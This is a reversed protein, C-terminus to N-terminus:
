RIVQEEFPSLALANIRIVSGQEILEEGEKTIGGCDERSVHCHTCPVAFDHRM